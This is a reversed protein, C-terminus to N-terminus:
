RRPWSKNFENVKKVVFKSEVNWKLMGKAVSLYVFLLQSKNIYIICIYFCM